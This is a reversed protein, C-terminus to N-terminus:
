LQRGDSREKWGDKTTLGQFLELYSAVVTEESFRQRITNQLGERMRRSTEPPAQLARCIAASLADPSEPGSLFGTVGDEIIETIGPIRTAICLGGCAGAELLSLPLGERRSPLVVAEAGQYLRPLDDHSMPGVFKVQSSIGLKKASAELNERDPGDGVLWLETGSFRAGIQKWAHLLIDVGKMAHLRGVFLVYRKESVRAPEHSEFWTSCIGNHIVRGKEEVCPYLATTDALLSQSVATVADARDFLRAQWPRIRPEAFPAHRIDSNHVTVVLRWDHPIWRAGIVPLSQTLPYHVHVVDPDFESVIRQFQFTARLFSAWSRPRHITTYSPATVGWVPVGNTLLRKQKWAPAIEVIGAPCGRETFEEAL